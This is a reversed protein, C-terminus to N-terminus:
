KVENKLGAKKTKKSTREKKNIFKLATIISYVYPVLLAIVLSAIVFMFLLISLDLVSYPNPILLMSDNGYTKLIADLMVLVLSTLSSLNILTFSLLEFTSLSHKKRSYNVWLAFFSISFVPVLVISTMIDTNFLRTILLVLMGVTVLVLSSMFIYLHNNKAKSLSNTVAIYTIILALWIVSIIPYTIHNIKRELFIGEQFKVSPLKAVYWVLVGIFLAAFFYIAAKFGSRIRARRYAGLILPLYLIALSVVVSLVLGFILIYSLLGRAFLLDEWTEVFKNEFFLTNINQDAIFSKFLVFGILVLFFKYTNSIMTLIFEKKAIPSAKLKVSGTYIQYTWNIIVPVLILLFKYPLLELSTPQWGFLVFPLAFAFVVSLVWWPLFEIKRGYNNTLNIYNKWLSGLGICFIIALNTLVVLNAGKAGLSNNVFLYKYDFFKSSESSIFKNSYFM